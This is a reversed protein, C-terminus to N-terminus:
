QKRVQFVEDSGGMMQTMYTVVFDEDASVQFNTNAGGGWGIAGVKKDGQAV